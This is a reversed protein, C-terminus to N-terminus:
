KEIDNEIMKRLYNFRKEQPVNYTNMKHKMQVLYNCMDIHSKGPMANMILDQLVRVQDCDFENDLAADGLLNGLDSGYDTETEEFSVPEVYPQTNIFEELNLNDVYETNKQIHFVVSYWKGGRGSKGKEYTFCIDTYKKLAKQCSDLVRVKFNSFRQYDDAPIGMYDKLDDISIERKGVSEYQKLLEYLRFQNASKLQLVNWLKYHTFENKIKFILPLIDDNPNIEIYWEGFEDKDVVFTPFLVISRYGGEGFRVKIKKEQLSDTKSELHKINLRGLEMIKQFESLPFRVRKSEIKDSNIKSLYIAFLRLEQITFNVERMENLSNKKAVEADKYLFSM